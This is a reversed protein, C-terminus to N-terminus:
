EIVQMTAYPHSKMFEPLYDWPNVTEPNWYESGVPHCDTQRNAMFVGNFWDCDRRFENKHGHTELKYEVIEPRQAYGFHSIRRDTPLTMEGDAVKPYLIRHPYAPDHIIARHFSRWFHVMPIRVRRVPTGSHQNFTPATYMIAWRIFDSPWIEDSDVVLIVDADPAVTHIHSRHEGEHQFTGETWRLKSGAASKAIAYLEDRTDPCKRDTKFGHSGEHTYICHFEDVHGIVSRIAYGLYDTGYLLCTFAVVKM